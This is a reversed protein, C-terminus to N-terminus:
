FWQGSDRVHRGTKRGRLCGQGTHRYRSREVQCRPLLRSKAGRVGKYLLVRLGLPITLGSDKITIVAKHVAATKTNAAPEDHDKFITSSQGGYLGQERVFAKVQAPHSCFASM